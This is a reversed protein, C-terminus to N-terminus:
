GDEEKQSGTHLLKYHKNKKNSLDVELHGETTGGEQRVAKSSARLCVKGKRKRDQEDGGTRLATTWHPGWVGSKRSRSHGPQLGRNYKRETCRKLKKEWRKMLNPMAEDKLNIEEMSGYLSAM